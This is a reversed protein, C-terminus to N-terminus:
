YKMEYKWRTSRYYVFNFKVSQEPTNPLGRTGSTEKQENNNFISGEM